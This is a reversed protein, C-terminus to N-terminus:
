CPLDISNFQILLSTELAVYFKTKPV